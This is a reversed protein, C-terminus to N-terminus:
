RLTKKAVAKSWTSYYKKKGINRYTRVQIYYTKRGKLKKITASTRTNRTLTITKSGKMNKKLSYRIQYGNTKVKQAKVKVVLKKSGAKVKAIKTGKPKKSSTKTPKKTAAADDDPATTSNASATVSPTRTPKVTATAKPTATPQKTPKVTPTATPESKAKVTVYYSTTLGNCTVTIKQIGTKDKDYGSYTVDANNVMLEEGNKLVYYVKNGTTDLEQGQEFSKNAAVCGLGVALVVKIKYKATLGLYTVTVEQEGVKNLNSLDYGTCTALSTGNEVLQKTGDSKTVYLKFNPKFQTGYPYVPTEDTEVSIEKADVVNIDYQATLDKYSVTVTQKGEKNMDYGSCTVYTNEANTDKILVETGDKAVVYLKFDTKLKSGILYTTNESPVVKIHDMELVDIDYTTELGMYRVTVTQKGPKSLDYGSYAANEKVGYWTKKNNEVTLEIESNKELNQGVFYQTRPNVVKIGTVEEADDFIQRQYHSVGFLEAQIGFYTYYPAKGSINRSDGKGYYVNPSDWTLDMFHWSNNYYVVNWEHNCDFKSKNETGDDLAGGTGEICMSPIGAARFMLEGLSAYGSCVALGDEFARDIGYKEGYKYSTDIDTTNGSTTGQIAPYNYAVNTCIWDHIIKIKEGDNKCDKTLEKAKEVIKEFSKCAINTFTRTKLYNEPKYNANFDELAKVAAAGYPSYISIKGNEKELYIPFNYCLTRSAATAFYVNASLTNVGDAIKSVDQSITCNNGNFKSYGFMKPTSTGADVDDIFLNLYTEYYAKTGSLAAIQVNKEAETDTINITLKNDELKYNWYHSLLESMDSSKIETVDAKMFADAKKPSIATMSLMMSLSLVVVLIKRLTKKTKNMPMEEREIIHVRPIEEFRPM